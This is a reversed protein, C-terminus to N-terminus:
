QAFYGVIDILLDTPNGTVVTIEGDTGAPVIAANAIVNGNPSNLTSVVPYPQGAPWTTLFGLPGQPVVTMNLAYAQANLPAGCPSSQIPFSRYVYAVLSPPGFSGTFPQSSRTDAVRCPRLAYFQLGGTGPAAFKGDIDILVDTTNGVVVNIDGNTGAPVIAANALVTGDPSNLTSVSPYPQGVPWTSLFGMPGPPAVTMNLSYAAESGSLCPSTSIPFDRVVYPSLSPPGFLGTFPQSSRTDAIRCPTLAFFDLGSPTPPAFYGNIDIILDTTNGAVVTIGGSTGAPVIAANAIVSGDVSNLTSVGPYGSGAPWVSLFELPGEPVVTFNLSYAQATPPVACQSSLIPFTRDTYGSLNPPGFAGTFPQSARTDAIRCPPLPYFQLSVPVPPPAALFVSVDGGGQNGVVVDARGDGNFDGVVVTGPFYSAAYNEATQFTGNPTGLLVSMNNSTNNAVALDPVGDGNFDGTALWVPDGGVAYNAVPQFTGDGNGLMVSVNNTTGNAVALDVFGDGNFDGVTVATPNTGVTINSVPPTQFTGNGNGLFVSVNNGNLDTVALDPNGDGNFDAVALADADSGAAFNTAAQFTGDGNGLLIDVTNAPGNAVALDPKGDLNFDGIVVNLPNAQVPFNQRPQFTGNGVGLYVSVNNDIVNVVVLDPIGDGNVDGAVVSQPDNGAASNTAPQFTGDGNGLLVSVNNSHANAVAVDAKGDGNFDAVAASFPFLAVNYPVATAFGNGAVATVIYAMPASKSTTYTVNGGYIAVLSHRGAPLTVTTAQAVGSGNLLASAVLAGGDMFSVFGSAATPSVAATLTVTQGFRPTAPLVSTLTTTTTAASLLVGFFLIGGTITSPRTM